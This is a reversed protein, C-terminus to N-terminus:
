AITGLLLMVPVLEHQAATAAMARGVYNSTPATSTVQGGAATGVLAGKAIAAAAVCWVIGTYFVAVAAGSAVQAVSGAANYTQFLKFQNIVGFCAANAGASQIVENDGTGQIVCAFPELIAAGALMTFSRGYQVLDYGLTISAM